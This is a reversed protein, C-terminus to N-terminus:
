CFWGSAENTLLYLWMITIAFISIHGVVYRPHFLTDSIYRGLIVVYTHPSLHQIYGCCLTAIVFGSCFTETHQLVWLITIAFFLMMGVVYHHHLALFVPKSVWLISIHLHKSIGVIYHPSFCITQHIFLPVSTLFVVVYHTRFCRVYGCYYSPM